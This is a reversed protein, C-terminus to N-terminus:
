LGWRGEPTKARRPRVSKMEWIFKLSLICFSLVYKSLEIACHNTAAGQEHPLLNLDKCPRFFKANQVKFKKKVFLKITILQKYIAFWLFNNQNQYIAKWQFTYLNPCIRPLSWSIKWIIGCLVMYWIEWQQFTDRFSESFNIDAM